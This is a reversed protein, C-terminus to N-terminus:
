EEKGGITFFQISSLVATIIFILIAITSAYGMDNKVVGTQYMHLSTYLLCPTLETYDCIEQLKKDEQGMSLLISRMVSSASYYEKTRSPVFRYFIGDEQFFLQYINDRVSVKPNFYQLYAPVGGTISYLLIQEELTM